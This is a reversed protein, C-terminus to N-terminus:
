SPVERYNKAPGRRGWPMGGGPGAPCRRAARRKAAKVAQALRSAKWGRRFPAPHQSIHTHTYIYIYVYLSLSIYIYIYLSLSLSLARALPAGRTWLGLSLFLCISLYISLYISRYISLGISLYIPLYTPLYASLTSLIVFWLMAYAYGSLNICCIICHVTISHHM